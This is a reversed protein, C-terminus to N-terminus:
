FDTTTGGSELCVRCEGLPKLHDCRLDQPETDFDGRRRRFRLWHISLKDKFDQWGKAKFGFGQPKGM